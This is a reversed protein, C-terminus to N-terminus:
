IASHTKWGSLSLISSTLHEAEGVFEELDLVTEYQLCNTTLRDLTATVIKV